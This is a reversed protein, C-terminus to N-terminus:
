EGGGEVGPGAVEGGGAWRASWRMQRGSTAVHSKGFLLVCAPFEVLFIARCNVRRSIPYPSTRLPSSVAPQPHSLFCRSLSAAVSIWFIFFALDTEVSKKGLPILNIAGVRSSFQISSHLFSLPDIIKLIMIRVALLYSIINYWIFSYISINM